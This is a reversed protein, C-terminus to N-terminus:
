CQVYRASFVDLVSCWYTSSKEIDVDKCSKVYIFEHLRSMRAHCVYVRLCTVYMCKYVRSMCAVTSVQCCATTSLHHVDVRPGSRNLRGNRAPPERKQSGDGTRGRPFNFRGNEQDRGNNHKM